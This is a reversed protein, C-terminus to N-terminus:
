LLRKANRKVKRLISIIYSEVPYFENLISQTEYFLLERNNKDSSMGLRDYKCVVRSVHVFKHGTKWFWIFMKKDAALLFNLDYLNNKLLERKIFASQHCIGFGRLFYIKSLRNPYKKIESYKEFVDIVDGYVVDYKDTIMNSVDSLVETDAFLDGSNMFILYEGTSNLIGKNMADYVGKDKESSWRLQKYNLEMLYELTGDTSKGDVIILEFDQYTQNIASEITQKLGSLNNRCVTIISFRIM